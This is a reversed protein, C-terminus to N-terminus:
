GGELALEPSHMWHRSIEHRLAERVSRMISRYLRKRANEGAFLWRRDEVVRWAEETPHPLCLQACRLDSPGPGFMWYEAFADGRGLTITEIRPGLLLRVESAVELHNQQGPWWPNTKPLTNIVRGLGEIETEIGPLDPRGTRISPVRYVGSREWPRKSLEPHVDGQPM